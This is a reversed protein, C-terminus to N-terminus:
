QAGREKTVIGVKEFGVENCLKMVKRVTGYRSEVDGKVKIPRGREEPNNYVEALKRELEAEDVQTTEWWLTGEKTVSITVQEQVNKEKKPNDTEPLTVERGKQLMPTIVMFIILLVLVVDVLPTVNIDNKPGQSARGAQM